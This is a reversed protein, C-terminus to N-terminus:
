HHTDHGDDASHNDHSPAHDDHHLYPRDAPIYKHHEWNDGKHNMVDGATGGFFVFLLLLGACLLYWIYKKEVNLHMFYACVFLAKVIAIGFATFLMIWQGETNDIEPGIISIVLLVLLTIYVLLYRPHGHDDLFCKM